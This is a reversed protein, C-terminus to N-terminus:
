EQYAALRQANISVESIFMMIQFIQQASGEDAIQNQSRDEKEKSEHHLLLAAPSGPLIRLEVLVVLPGRGNSRVPLWPKRKCNPLWRDAGSLNWKLWM